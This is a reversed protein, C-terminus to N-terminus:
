DGRAHAIEARVAQQALARLMRDLRQLRDLLVVDVQRVRDAVMVDLPGIREVALARDARHDDVQRRALHVNGPAIGALVRIVRIM